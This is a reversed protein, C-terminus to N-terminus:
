ELREAPMNEISSLHTEIQKILSDYKMINTRMLQHLKQDIPIEDDHVMIVEEDIKKHGFANRYAMFEKSYSDLFNTYEPDALSFSYDHKLIQIIKLLIHLHDQTTFYKDQRIVVKYESPEQKVKELETESQRGTKVKNKLRVEVVRRIKELQEEDFIDCCKLLIDKFRVEFNSANDLVVGRLNIIDESRRVIKTILKDIKREFEEGKRDSYYVGDLPPNYQSIDQLLTSYQSSYFLIDTLINNERIEKILDSGKVGRALRYDMLILDYNKSLLELLSFDDDVKQTIIQHLCHCNIKEAILESEMAYWDHDDEFWLIKFDCNM